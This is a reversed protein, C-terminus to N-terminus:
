VSLLYGGNSPIFLDILENEFSIVKLNDVWATKFIRRFWPADYLVDLKTDTRASYWVTSENNWASM